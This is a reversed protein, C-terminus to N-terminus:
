GIDSEYNFQKKQRFTTYLVALASFLTEITHFHIQIDLLFDGPKKDESNQQV